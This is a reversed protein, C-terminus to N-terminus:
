SPEVADVAAALKGGFVPCVMARVMAVAKDHGEAGELKAILDRAIDRHADQQECAALYLREQVEDEVVRLAQAARPRLGFAAAAGALM